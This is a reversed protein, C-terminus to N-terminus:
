CFRVFYLTIVISTSKTKLQRESKLNGIGDLLAKTSNFPKTRMQLESRARGDVGLMANPLPLLVNLRRPRMMGKMRLKYKVSALSDASPIPSGINPEAMAAPFVSAQCRTLKHTTGLVSSTLKACPVGSGTRNLYISTQQRFVCNM